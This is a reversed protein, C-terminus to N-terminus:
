GWRPGRPFRAVSVVVAATTPLFMLEPVVPGMFDAAVLAMVSCSEALAMSLIFSTCPSPAGKTGANEAAQKQLLSPLMFSSGLMGFSLCWLAGQVETGPAFTPWLHAFDLAAPDRKGIVVVGVILLVVHSMTLSAWLTRVTQLPPASKM